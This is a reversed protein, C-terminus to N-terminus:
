CIKRSGAIVEIPIIRDHIFDLIGPHCDVFMGCSVIDNMFM